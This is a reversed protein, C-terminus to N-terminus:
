ETADKILVFALARELLSLSVRPNLDAVYKDKSPCSCNMFVSLKWVRTQLKESSFIM